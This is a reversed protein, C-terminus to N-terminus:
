RPTLTITNELGNLPLSQPFDSYWQDLLYTYPTAFPGNDNWHEFCWQGNDDTVGQDSLINEYGYHILISLGIIPELNEKNVFKYCTTIFEREEEKTASCNLFQLVLFVGIIAVIVEGLTNKRYRGARGSM